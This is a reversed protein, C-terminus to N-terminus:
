SGETGTLTSPSETALKHKMIGLIDLTGYCAQATSSNAFGTVHTVGTSHPVLVVKHEDARSKSRNPRVIRRQKRKPGPTQTSKNPLGVKKQDYSLNIVTELNTSPYEIRTNTNRRILRMQSSQHLEEEEEQLSIALTAWHAAQVRAGCVTHQRLNPHHATM